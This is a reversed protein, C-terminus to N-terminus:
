YKITVNAIKGSAIASVIDKAQDRTLGETWEMLDAVADNNIKARWKKDAERRKAEAADAAQADAVRKREAEIAAIGDRIAKEAAAKANAEAIEARSIAVLREHEAQAAAQEAKKEAEVRAREAIAAERDRQEQEARAKSEAEQREAEAKRLRELEAREADRTRAESLTRGLIDKVSAAMAEAQDYFEEWNRACLTTARTIRGIVEDSTPQNNFQALGNLAALADVHANKRAEEKAEYEDVPKRVEDRLADLRDRIIKRDADIVSAAKKLDAVYNKGMDDLATKSRSVKYALSKAEDRGAATSTDIATYRVKREVGAILIEVAGPKFVDAAKLTEVQILDNSM